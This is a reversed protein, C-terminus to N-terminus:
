KLEEVKNIFVDKYKQFLGSMENNAIKLSKFRKKM